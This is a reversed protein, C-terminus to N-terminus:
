KPAPGSKLETVCGGSGSHRPWATGRTRCEAAWKRPNEIYGKLTDNWDNGLKPADRLIIMGEPALDRLQVEFDSGSKDNDTAIVLAQGAEHANSFVAKLVNLQDPSMSGAFSVYADKPTGVVEAYSLADIATETLVLRESRGTNTSYWISKKGGSAFGTFGGYNKTEYGSLGERDYHPFLANDREDRRIVGAFRPDALTEPHIGRSVLYEHKGAPQSRGIAQLVKQRDATSPLPKKIRHNMQVPEAGIWPRLEKRVQGLNLGKRKQVFDVISGNDQNDRVSFYTGHGDAATAIIIKDDDSERQMIISNRSSENKILEYGEAAAYEPLSIERKFCELEDGRYQRVAGIGREFSGSSRRLARDSNEAARGVADSATSLYRGAGALQEGAGDFAARARTVGATFAEVYGGIEARVRDYGTRLTEKIQAGLEWIRGSLSRTRDRFSSISQGVARLISSKRSAEGFNAPGFPDGAKDGYAGPVDFADSGLERKLHDSLGSVGSPQVEAMGVESQKFSINQESQIGKRDGGLRMEFSEQNLQQSEIGRIATERDFSHNRQDPRQYREKHYGARREIWSEFESRAEEARKIHTERDTRQGDPAESGSKGLSSGDFEEAYIGGKLRVAKTFGSPKVSVHDKGKRTIEGLEELSAVIGARDTVLGDFVRSTLWQTIQERVKAHNVLIPKDYTPPTNVLRARAPDDPRAWGQGYNWSDRLADYFKAHGPPAINLAKGTFLEVRPAVMHLETNGEHQHRVWLIDYQDFELGAFALREFDDMLQKQQEDTPVDDVHFAIVGSTYKYKNNINDILRRTTEPNGRLVEPLPDRRSFVVNGQDNKLHRGFSDTQRVYENTLYETPGRGGGTGRKFFKIHM